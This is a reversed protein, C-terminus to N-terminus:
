LNLELDPTHAWSICTCMSGRRQEETLCVDRHDPEGALVETVCSACEGRKCEYATWVDNVLLAELITTGPQVEITIGTQALRVSVPKDESKIAAGFSEFHIREASWGRAAAKARVSDILPRPGCVYLDTETDHDTLIADVDLRRGGDRGSYLAPDELFTPLPLFRGTDRAAYHLSLPKSARHLTHMMSFFPTIGIGGAIFVSHRAELNLPFANNPGTVVIKEGLQLQDHLYTSGGRSPRTRLVCIEYFDLADPDSTLSYRRTFGAFSLEIHAGPKFPSLTVGEPAELRIRLVDEAIQEKETVLVDMLKIGQTSLHPM